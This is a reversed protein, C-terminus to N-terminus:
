IPAVPDFPADQPSTHSLCLVPFLLLPWTLSEFSSFIFLLTATSPLCHKSESTTDSLPQQTSATEVAAVSKLIMRIRLSNAGFCGRALAPRAVASTLSVDDCASTVSMRQSRYPLREFLIWDSRQQPLLPFSSSRESQCRNRRTFGSDVTFALRVGKM